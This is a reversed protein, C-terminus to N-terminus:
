HRDFFSSAGQPDRSRDEGVATVLPVEGPDLLQIIWCTSYPPTRDFFSFRIGLRNITTAPFIPAPFVESASRMPELSPPFRRKLRDGIVRVQGIEVGIPFAPRKVQLDEEQPV